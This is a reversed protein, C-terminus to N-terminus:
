KQRRTNNNSTEYTAWRCNSLEYNGDNNVRDLVLGEPPEGMDELFNEFNWWRVCVTIGRGGYDAYRPHKPNFCRGIMEKWRNYVSSGTRGHTRSRNGTAERHLCGCSSTNKSKLDEGYILKENGCDCVCAWVAKGWKGTHSFEVVTLRGFKQGSIDIRQTMPVCYCLGSRLVVPFNTMPHPGGSRRNVGEVADLPGYDGVIRRVYEVNVVLLVNLCIRSLM